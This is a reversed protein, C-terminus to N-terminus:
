SFPTNASTCISRKKMANGAQFVNRKAPLKILISM